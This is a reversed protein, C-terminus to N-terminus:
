PKIWAQGIPDFRWAAAQDFTQPWPQRAAEDDRLLWVEMVLGTSREVTYNALFHSGAMAAPMKIMNDLGHIRGGPAMSGAVGNVRVNPPLDFFVEGRLANQPFNRPQQAAAPLAAAVLVAAALLTSACRPMTYIWPSHTLSDPMKAPGTGPGSGPESPPWAREKHRLQRKGRPLPRGCWTPATCNATM